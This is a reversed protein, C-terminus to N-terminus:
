RPGQPQDMHQPYLILLMPTILLLTAAKSFGM